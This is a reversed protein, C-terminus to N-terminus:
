TNRFVAILNYDNLPRKIKYSLNGFYPISIVRKYDIESQKNNPNFDLMTNKNKIQFIRNNIHKNILKLPFNNLM